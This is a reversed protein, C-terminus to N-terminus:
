IASSSHRNSGASCGSCATHMDSVHAQVGAAAAAAGLDLLILMLLLGDLVELGLLCGHHPSHPPPAQQVFIVVGLLFILLLLLLLQQPTRMCPTVTLLRSSRTLPASSQHTCAGVILLLLSNQPANSHSTQQTSLLCSRPNQQSLCAGMNLLAQQKDPWIKQIAKSDPHM